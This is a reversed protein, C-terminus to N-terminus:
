TEHREDTSIVGAGVLEPDQGRADPPIGLQTLILALALAHSLKM